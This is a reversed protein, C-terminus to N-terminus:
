EVTCLLEGGVREERCKRDSLVGKSTSVVAIGLGQVPRPIDDVGMYRRCGPKSKRTMRIILPEGLDSYKLQVRIQGQTGSEIMDYGLIYGEHQLVDLIGRNVKSNMVVTTKARNRVANRVRTLMDAIPDSLTM